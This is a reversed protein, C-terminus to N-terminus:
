RSLSPTQLVIGKKETEFLEKLILTRGTQISNFGYKKRIRDFALDLREQRKIKEDFLQLQKVEGTLNSVEVGLLRV